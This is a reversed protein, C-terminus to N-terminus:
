SSWRMLIRSLLYFVGEDMYDLRKGPPYESAPPPFPNSGIGIFITRTPDDFTV